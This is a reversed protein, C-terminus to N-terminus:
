ATVVAGATTTGRHVDPIRAYLWQMITSFADDVPSAAFQAGPAPRQVGGNKSSHDAVVGVADEMAMLLRHLHLWLLLEGVAGVRQWVRALNDQMAKIREEPVAKLIEIIRTMDKQAIRISFSPLDLITEFVAQVGDMIIVPICGHLISDELRPSWGDSAANFHRVLSM